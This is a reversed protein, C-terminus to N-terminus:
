PDLLWYPDGSVRVLEGYLEQTAGLYGLRVCGIREDNFATVITDCDLEKTLLWDDELPLIVDNYDHTCQTALNYNCGYGRRASNSYSASVVRSYGGAITHLHETYGLPSGDDAIHVRLEGSWKINEIVARLCREAYEMRNFTLFMICLRSM